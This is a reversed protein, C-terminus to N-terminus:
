RLTPPPPSAPTTWTPVVGNSTAFSCATLKRCVFLVHMCIAPNYARRVVLFKSTRFRIGINSNDDASCLASIISRSRLWVSLLPHKSRENLPVERVHLWEVMTEHDVVLEVSGFLADHDASATAQARSRAGIPSTAYEPSALLLGAVVQRGVSLASLIHFAHALTGLHFELTTAVADRDRRRAFM